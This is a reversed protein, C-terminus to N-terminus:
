RIIFPIVFILAVSKEKLNFPKYICTAARLTTAKEILFLLMDQGVQLLAGRSFLPSFDAKDLRFFRELRLWTIFGSWLRM